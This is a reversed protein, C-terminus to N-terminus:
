FVFQGTLETGSELVISIEYTGPGPVPVLVQLSSSSYEDSSIVGATAETLTITVDGMPFLFNFYLNGSLSDFCCSVPLVAPTRPSNPDVIPGSEQLWVPLEGDRSPSVCSGAKTPFCALMFGILILASLYLFRKM